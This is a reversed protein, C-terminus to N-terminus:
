QGYGALETIHDPVRDLTRGQFESVRVVGFGASTLFIANASSLDDFGREVEDCEINEVIFERTTGPLCGTKLSPTYLKGEAIWFVNAMCASTIKGRENLRIAEDFRNSRADELALLNDLYNCSKVGALPSKSNIGYSSLTVRFGESVPRRDATTILLSTKRESEFPWITSASEDFFTIRARGETVNNDSILKDLNARVAREPFESLDLQVRRADTELRRWHKEWLFPKSDRVALTTFIGKGYLSASSAAPVVSAEPKQITGNFSVLPM